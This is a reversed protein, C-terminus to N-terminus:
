AVKGHNIHRETRNDVHCSVHEQGPKYIIRRFLKVSALDHVRFAAVDVDKEM